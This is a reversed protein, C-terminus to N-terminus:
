KRMIAYTVADKLNIKSKCGGPGVTGARLWRAPAEAHCVGVLPGADAGPLRGGRAHSRLANHWQQRPGPGTGGSGGDGGGGPTRWEWVRQTLGTVDSLAGRSPTRWASHERPKRNCALGHVAAYVAQACHRGRCRIHRHSLAIQDPIAPIRVRPRRLVRHQCPDVDMRRVARRRGDKAAEDGVRFLVLPGCHLVAAAHPLRQRTRAPPRAGPATHKLRRM